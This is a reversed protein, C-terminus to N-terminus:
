IEVVMYKKPGNKGPNVCIVNSLYNKVYDSFRIGLMIRRGNEQDEWFAPALDKCEFIVGVPPFVAEKLFERFVITMKKSFAWHQVRNRGQANQQATNKRKRTKRTKKTKRTRKKPVGIIKVTNNM